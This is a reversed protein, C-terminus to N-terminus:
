AFDDILPPAEQWDGNDDTIRDDDFPPRPQQERPVQRRHERDSEPGVPRTPLSPNVPDINVM